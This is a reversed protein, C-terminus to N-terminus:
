RRSCSSVSSPAHTVDVGALRVRGSRPQRLGSLVAFLTTKGAGNPGVLGSISREAVRLDVGDLALIGGFRVTIEEAALLPETM